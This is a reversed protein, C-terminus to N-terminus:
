RSCRRLRGIALAIRCALDRLVIPSYWRLAYDRRWQALMRASEMQPEIPERDTMVPIHCDFIPGGLPEALRGSAAPKPASRYSARSRRDVKFPCNPAFDGVFAVM